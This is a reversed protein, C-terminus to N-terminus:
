EDVATHIAFYECQLASLMYFGQKVFLLNLTASHSIVSLSPKHCIYPSCINQLVEAMKSFHM